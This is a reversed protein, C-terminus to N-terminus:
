AKVISIFASSLFTQKHTEQDQAVRTKYKYYVIITQGAIYNSGIQAICFMYLPLSEVMHM